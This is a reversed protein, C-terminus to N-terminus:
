IKFQDLAQNSSQEKVPALQPAPPSLARKRTEFAKCFCELEEATMEEAVRRFVTGDLEPMAAPLLASARCVLKQKYARGLEADAELAEWTRLAAQAQEKTLTVTGGPVKLKQMWQETGNQEQGTHFAKTVGAARQAPVAVFSWEYADKAGNLMHRCLKGDYWQGPIHGCGRGTRPKGCVACTKSGIAVGVSVEKKIGADIENILTENEDSHLMYAKAKLQWYPEGAQNTRGEVPEAKAEYVRAKQDGSKMSHDFIGTKGIFLGALEQLAEVTFQEMDRDIENDCLVVSFTYVEEPRLPRRSYRGIRELEEPTAKGAACDIHGEKM